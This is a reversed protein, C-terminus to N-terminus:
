LEGYEKGSSSFALSCGVVSEICGAHGASDDGVVALDVQSFLIEVLPYLFTVGDIEAHFKFFLSKGARDTNRKWNWEGSDSHYSHGCGGRGRKSSSPTEVALYRKRNTM